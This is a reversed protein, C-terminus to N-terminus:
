ELINSTIYDVGMEILKEARAHDDVTWVNIELGATHFKDVAKKNIAKHYIAVDIKDNILKTTIEDSLESFLFMVSQNPLAKRVYTLPTYYFSIFTVRDLYGQADIIGIISLMEQETFDSKLELIAQKDYQKCINIYSELTTLREGPSANGQKDFLVIDLLEQQTSTEVSVNVGSLREVTDDHCIIFKGDATRRVDSEIGYYSHKGASIFASDTNEVELGSLGRHAIMKVSGNDIDITNQYNKKGCAFLGAFCVILLACAIIKKM